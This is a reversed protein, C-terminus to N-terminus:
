KGGKKGKAWALGIGQRILLCVGLGRRILLCVKFGSRGSRAGHNIPVQPQAECGFYGRTSDGGRATGSLPEPGSGLRPLWAANNGAMYRVLPAAVPM